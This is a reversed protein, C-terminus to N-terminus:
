TGCHRGAPSVERIAGGRATRVSAVGSARACFVHILGIEGEALQLRQALTRSSQCTWHLDSDINPLGATRWSSPGDIVRSGGIALILAANVATLLPPWLELPQNAVELEQRLNIVKAQQGAWRAFLDGESSTAKLSEVIELGWM